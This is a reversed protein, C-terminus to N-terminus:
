VGGYRVTPAELVIIKIVVYLIKAVVAIAFELQLIKILSILTYRVAKISISEM